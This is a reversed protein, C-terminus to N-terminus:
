HNKKKKERTIEGVIVDKMKDIAAYLDAEIVVARFNDKGVALNIEAKFVDGKHHHQTTKGIEIEALAQVKPDLFREVTGVKTHVYESIADTLEMNTTKVKKNLMYTTQM